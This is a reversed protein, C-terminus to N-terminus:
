MSILHDMALHEIEGLTWSCALLLKEFHNDSDASILM